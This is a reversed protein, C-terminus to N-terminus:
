TDSSTGGGSGHDIKIKTSIQRSLTRVETSDRYRPNRRSSNSQSAGESEDTDPTLGKLLQYEEESVVTTWSEGNGNITIPINRKAEHDKLLKRTMDAINKLREDTLSKYRPLLIATTIFIISFALLAPTPIGAVTDALVIVYPTLVEASINMGIITKTAAAQIFPAAFAYTATALATVKQATGIALPTLKGTYALYGAGAVIVAAGLTKKSPTFDRAIESVTPLNYTYM